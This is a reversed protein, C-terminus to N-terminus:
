STAPIGNPFGPAPQPEPTSEPGANRLLLWAAVGLFIVACINFYLTQREPDLGAITPYLIGFLLLQGSLWKGPVGPVSRKLLWALLLFSPLLIVAATGAFGLLLDSCDAVLGYVFAAATGFLVSLLVPRKASALTLGLVLMAFILLWGTEVESLVANTTAGPQPLGPLAIGMGKNSIAHDLRYTLACGQNDNTPTISTPTMCGGPYNLKAQALDPLNLRLTFDRIERLENVQFYWYSMGRSTFSIDLDLAENPQLERTLVLATNKIQMRPLVDSGNLTASLADYVAGSAPLPFTLVSKLSRDAPNKLRWTFHCVTEYGDYFASGKKRPNQRLTIEHRASIFPNDTITNRVTKKRIIAPKTLDESEIRESVEEEYFNDMVLEGQSQESGWITQVANYNATTVRGHGRQFAALTRHLYTRLVSLAGALFAILMLAWLLRGAQRYLTWLLSRKGDPGASTNRVFITALFVALLSSGLFLAVIPQVDALDSARGFLKTLIIKMASSERAITKNQTKGHRGFIPVVPILSVGRLKV